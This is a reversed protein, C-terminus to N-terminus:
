AAEEIHLHHSEPALSPLYHSLDLEAAFARVAEPIPADLFGADFAHHHARCAPVWGREDRLIAELDTGTLPSPIFWAPRIRPNARSHERKLVQQPILHARDLYPTDCPKSSYPAFYCRDTM